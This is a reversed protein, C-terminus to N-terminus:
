QIHLIKAYCTLINSLVVKDLLSFYTLKFLELSHLFTTYSSVSESESVQEDVLNSVRLSLQIGEATEATM